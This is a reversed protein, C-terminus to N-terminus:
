WDALHPLYREVVELIVLLPKESEVLNPDYGARASYSRYVRGFSDALAPALEGGFSDGLLVAHPLNPDSEYIQRAPEELVRRGANGTRRTYVWETDPLTDPMALMLALDGARAGGGHPEQTITYDGQRLPPLDRYWPRLHDVIASAAWFAGNRNWHTDTDYYVSPERHARLVPRLDLVDLERHEHLRAVIADFVGPAPPGYRAPVDEPYVSQKNPVLVILYHAGLANYQEHRAVSGAVWSDLDSPAFAWRGAFDAISIGDKLAAYFLRGHNGIIVDPVPSERLYEVALQSHWGILQERFGFRDGLLSRVKRPVDAV